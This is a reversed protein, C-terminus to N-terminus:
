NRNQNDLRGTQQAAQLKQRPVQSHCRKSAAPASEFIVKDGSRSRGESHGETLGGQRTRCSHMEGGLFFLVRNKM